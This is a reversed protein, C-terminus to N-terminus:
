KSEGELWYQIEQDLARDRVLDHGHWKYSKGRLKLMEEQMPGPIAEGDVRITRYTLKYQVLRGAPTDQWTGLTFSKVM